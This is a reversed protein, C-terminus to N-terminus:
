VFNNREDPAFSITLVKYDTNEALDLKSLMKAMDELQPTCIGACKFYNLSIITPKGDMYEKLTRSQGDEDRLLKTYCVNYSTIRIFFM